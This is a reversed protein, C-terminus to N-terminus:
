SGRMRVIAVCVKRPQEHDYTLTWVISWQRHQGLRWQRGEEGCERRISQSVNYIEVRHCPRAADLEAKRDDALIMDHLYAEVASSRTRQRTSENSVNIYDDYARDEQHEERVRVLAFSHLM